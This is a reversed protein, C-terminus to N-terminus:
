ASQGPWRGAPASRDGARRGRPAPMLRGRDLHNDPEACAARQDAALSEAQGQDALSSAIAPQGADHHARGHEPHADAYFVMIVWAALSIMVVIPIVIPALSSGVM